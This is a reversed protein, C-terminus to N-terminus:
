EQARAQTEGGLDHGEDWMGRWMGRNWVMELQTM